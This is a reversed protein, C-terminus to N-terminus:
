RAWVRGIPYAIAAVLLPAISVAAGFVLLLGAGMDGSRDYNPSAMKSQVWWFLVGFALLMLVGPTVLLRVKGRWSLVAFLAVWMAYGGWTLVAPV